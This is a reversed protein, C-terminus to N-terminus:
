ISQKSNVSNNCTRKSAPSTLKTPLTKRTATKTTTMLCMNNAAASIKRNGDESNKCCFLKIKTLGAIGLRM